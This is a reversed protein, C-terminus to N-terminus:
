ILDAFAQRVEGRLLGHFSKVPKDISSIKGILHSFVVCSDLFEVFYELNALKQIKAVCTFRVGSVKNGLIVTQDIHFDINSTQALM